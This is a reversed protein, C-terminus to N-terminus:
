LIGAEKRARHELYLFLSGFLVLGFLLGEVGLFIENTRTILQALALLKDTM